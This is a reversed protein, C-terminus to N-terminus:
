PINILAVGTGSSIFSGSVQFVSTIESSTMSVELPSLLAWFLKMIFHFHISYSCMVPFYLFNCHIWSDVQESQSQFWKLLQWIRNVSPCHGIFLEWNVLLYNSPKHIATRNHVYLTKNTLGGGSLLLHPPGCQMSNAEIDSNKNVQLGHDCLWALLVISFQGTIPIGM